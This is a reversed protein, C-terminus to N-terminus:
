IRKAACHAAGLLPTEPNLALRVPIDAIARAMRGKDLFGAMFEGARLATQIKPAIGGGIYLGGLPLCKLALNGAEAGYIRVFMRMAKGCLPDSGVLGQQSIVANRDQGALGAEFAPDAVGRGTDKLFDYLHGFGDGALIREVSVHGKFRQRLYVLLADEEASNPAFDTHGGETPLVIHRAGDWALIAEGLGTGAAIVAKHGPRVTARPNLEIFDEPALQLMGYAAAELDNLLRVQAFGFRSALSGADIVWPLNTTECRQTGDADCVIPGAIGFCAARPTEVGALFTVLLDEFEAHAGSAYVAKRLEALSGDGAVRYLCCVTKTGGVDAALVLSM